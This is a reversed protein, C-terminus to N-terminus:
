VAINQIAPNDTNSLLDRMQFRLHIDIKATAINHTHMLFKAEVEQM